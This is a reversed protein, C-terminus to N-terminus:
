EKLRFVTGCGGHSSNCATGAGGFQTTGYLAGDKGVAVSAFPFAGGTSKGKFTHLVLPIWPGVKSPPPTLKVITGCGGGSVKSCDASTGAQSTTAYLAGGAGAALAAFPAAGDPGGFSHLATYTWKTGRTPPKLRFVVGAGHEGGQATTGYLAGVKDAILGSRPSFGGGSTFSYLVRGTWPGTSKPTLQFVTGGNTAGGERTTGVLSGGKMTFLASPYAGDTKGGRFSYLLTRTWPKGVATPPKLKFVTGRGSAGGVETSGYLTGDAARLLASQPNSGDTKGGAFNYIVSHKWKTTSSAPPALQFVTGRDSKGGYVTTGFLSGNPAITLGGNPYVGVGGGTFMHLVTRTWPKMATAPPTLKFAMGVNAPGGTQTTGFLAGSKDLSVAAVPDSGDGSGARFSYLLDFKPMSITASCTVPGGPGTFTAKYITTAAPRVSKSGALAVTGIRNDISGRTAHKSSWTLIASKGPELVTPKASLTCTPPVTKFSAVLARPQTVEFVYNPTTSISTGNDSWKVFAYGVKPSANVTANSGQPYSGGGSVTGGAAPSASVAITHNVPIAKFNAVLQRSSNLAFTYSPSTSVENDNQTWNDFNYGGAATATVTRTSGAPFTGDGSVTGGETPAATVAITYYEATKVRLIVPRTVDGRGNTTNIFKINGHYNGPALSAANANLSLTVTKLSTTLTGSPASVTLWNPVDMVQYNLSTNSARLKFTFSPPVFPGGAPGSADMVANTCVELHPPSSTPLPIRAIWGSSTLISGGNNGAIVTGDDSVGIAAPLLSPAYIFDHGAAELVDQIDEFGGARSWRFARSGRTSSSTGVLVSGDFNMANIAGSTEQLDNRHSTIQTWGCDASWRHGAYTSTGYVYGGAAVILGNGSVVSPQLGPLGFEVFGSAATWRFGTGESLTSDRRGVIVSGDQSASFARSNKDQPRTLIEPVGGNVWRAAGGGGAWVLANISGVITKGDSSVGFVNSGTGEPADVPLPLVTVNGDSGWRLSRSAMYGTTYLRGTISGVIVNGDGSVAVAGGQVDYLDSSLPLMDVAGAKWRAPLPTFNGLTVTGVATSGDASMAWIHMGRAGNPLALKEFTVQASAAKLTATLNRTGQGNTANAVSITAQYPGAPLNNATTANVTFFIHTPTTTATGSAPTVSLWSPLGTIAFAVSGSTARLSYHFSSPRFPGGQPGVTRIDQAGEVILNLPPRNKAQWFARGHTAIALVSTGANFAIDVVPVNPLGANFATWSTGGNSSHFVGLDSAVFLGTAPATPDLLIANIPADPLNASIDTWTAGGNVSKWVHGTGFGSFTVYVIDANAPNVVIRTIFRNPLGTTITNWTTGGNTTKNLSGIDTGVYIINADSRAEAIASIRGTFSAGVVAWLEAQNTSRYLKTTGFYLTKPQSPSAVLPPHYLADDTLDIGSVRPLGFSEFAGGADRRPGAIGPTWQCQAYQAYKSRYPDNVPKTPSQDIVTFGGDCENFREDMKDGGVAAARGLDEAGGLIQSADEPHLSMGANLRATPLSYAIFVFNTGNSRSVAERDAFVVGAPNTPDFAVADISIDQRNLRKFSSGGDESRYLWYAGLYVTNPDTPNVAIALNSWCPLIEGRCQIDTTNLSSWNTGGNTTKYIGLLGDNSRDHIAAYVVNPASAALALKIRGADADPLGNNLKSWTEGGNVSKYIGNSAAGGINGLAAYVTTPTTPDFVVDTAIGSLVKVFGAGGDTSRYLGLDSAVLFTDTSTPHIAIKGISSGGGAGAAFIAEGQRTWTGGGNTSKLIGCGPVSSRALNQVGTGAYITNPNKPDIALAGIALSCQDDSIPTWSRYFEDSLGDNVTKWVGGGATGVYITNPATPDIAVSTFRGGPSEGQSGGPFLEWQNYGSPSTAASYGSLSMSTAAARTNDRPGFREEYQQRAREYAGAPIQKFPYARQTIFTKDQRVVATGTQARQAQANSQASLLFLAACMGSSIKLLQMVAGRVFTSNRCSTPLVSLGSVALESGSM